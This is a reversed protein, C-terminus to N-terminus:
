DHTILIQTFSDMEDILVVQPFREAAFIQAPEAYITSCLLNRSNKLNVKEPFNEDRLGFLPFNDTYLQNVHTINSIFFIFCANMAGNVSM